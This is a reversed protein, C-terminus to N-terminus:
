IWWTKYFKPFLVWRMRWTNWLLAFLINNQIFKCLNQLTIDSIAKITPPAIFLYKLLTWGLFELLCFKGTEGSVQLLLVETGIWFTLERLGIKILLKSVNERSESKFILQNKDREHWQLRCCNTKRGDQRILKGTPMVLSISLGNLLCIVTWCSVNENLLNRAKGQTFSIHKTTWLKSPAM